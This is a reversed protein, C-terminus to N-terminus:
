GSDEQIPRSISNMWMNSGSGYNTFFWGGKHLVRELVGRDEGATLFRIVLLLLKGWTCSQSGGEGLPAPRTEKDRVLGSRRM